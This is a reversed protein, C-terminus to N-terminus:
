KGSSPTSPLSVRPRIVPRESFQGKKRHTVVDRDCDPHRQNRHGSVEGMPPMGEFGQYLTTRSVRTHPDHAVKSAGPVSPYCPYSLGAKRALARTGWSKRLSADTTACDHMVCEAPDGSCHRKHYQQTDPISAPWGSLKVAAPLSSEQFPIEVSVKQM